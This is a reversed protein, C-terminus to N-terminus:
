RLHGQLVWFLWEWHVLIYTDEFPSQLCLIFSKDRQGTLCNQIKVLNLRKATPNLTKLMVSLCTTVWCFPLLVVHIHPLHGLHLLLPESTIFPLINEISDLFLKLFYM